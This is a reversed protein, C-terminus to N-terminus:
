KEFFYGHKTLYYNSIRSLGDSLLPCGGIDRIKKQLSTLPPVNDSLMEELEKAAMFIEESTPM